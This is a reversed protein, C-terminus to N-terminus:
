MIGRLCILAQFQSDKRIADGTIPCWSLNFVATVCLARMSAKMRFSNWSPHRADSLISAVNRFPICLHHKIADKDNLTCNRPSFSLRNLSPYAKMEVVKKLLM